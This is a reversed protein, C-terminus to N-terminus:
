LLLQTLIYNSVVISICGYVVSQTGANGVGVAGDKVTYGFYASLSVILFGFVETKIMAYLVYYPRFGMQLGRVFEEPSVLDLFTSVLYGGFLGFIIALLIILPFTLFAAVIKPLVLMSASNIGMVDIASIQETVRMTGISSAIFGGVKGTLIVCTLTPGFELLVSERTGLGIMFDQVISYQKLNTATQLTVVAGVFLSLFIVIGFSQFGIHIFDQRLLKMFFNFKVPKTFVEYLFHFFRGLRRLIYVTFM